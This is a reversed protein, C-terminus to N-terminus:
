TFFPVIHPLLFFTYTISFPNDYIIQSLRVAQNNNNKYFTRYISVFVYGVTLFSCNIRDNLFAHHLLFIQNQQHIMCHRFLYLWFWIPYSSRDFFLSVAISQQIKACWTYFFKNAVRHFIDFYISATSCM